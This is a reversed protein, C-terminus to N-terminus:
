LKNKQLIQISKIQDAFFGSKEPYKLSLIKYAQMANEYKKQELYVKALTETMLAVDQRNEDVVTTYIKGKELPAIKPKNEIFQDILSEKNATKKIEQEKTRVIPKKISLQL